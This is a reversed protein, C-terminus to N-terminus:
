EEYEKPCNDLIVHMKVRLGATAERFSKLCLESLKYKDTPYAPPVKSVTPYIRYAIVLDYPM